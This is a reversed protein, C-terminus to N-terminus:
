QAKRFLVAHPAYGFRKLLKEWGKRGEIEKVPCGNEDAWGELADCLQAAYRHVDRGALDHLKAIRQGTADVTRVSTLAISLLRGGELVLWLTRRGQLIEAYLAGMTVDGPFRAALRGLERLVDSM